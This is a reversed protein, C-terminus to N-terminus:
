SDEEGIFGGKACSPAVSHDPLSKTEFMEPPYEPFDDTIKWGPPKDPRGLHVQVIPALQKPPEPQHEIGHRPKNRQQTLSSHNQMELAREIMSAAAVRGRVNKDTEDAALGWMREAIHEQRINKAEELLYAFKPNHQKWRSYTVMDVGLRRMELTVSSGSAINRCVEEAIEMTLRTPRGRPRPLYKAEADLARQTSTRKDVRSGVPRGRPRKTPRTSTQGESRRVLPKRGRTRTSTEQEVKPESSTEQTPEPLLARQSHPQM